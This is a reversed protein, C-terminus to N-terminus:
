QDRNASLTEHARPANENVLLHRFGARRMALALGGGGAFLEISTGPERDQDAPRTGAQAPEPIM